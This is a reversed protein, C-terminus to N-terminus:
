HSHTLVCLFLCLSLTLAQGQEVLARPWPLVVVAFLTLPPTADLVAKYSETRSTVCVCFGVDGSSTVNYPLGVRM